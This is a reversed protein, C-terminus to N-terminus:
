YFQRLAKFYKNINKFMWSNDETSTYGRKENRALIAKVEKVDEKSGFHTALLLYNETHHNREENEKYEKAIAQLDKAEYLATQLQEILNM